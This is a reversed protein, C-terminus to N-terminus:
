GIAAPENCLGSCFYSLHTGGAVQELEADSLEESSGANVAELDALFEEATFDFGEQNGLAVILNIDSGLAEVKELLAPNSQVEKRFASLNENSL